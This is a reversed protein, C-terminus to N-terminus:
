RKKYANTKPDNIYHQPNKMFQKFSIMIYQTNNKQTWYVSTDRFVIGSLELKHSWEYYNKYQNPWYHRIDKWGIKHKVFLDYVLKGQTNNNIRIIYM